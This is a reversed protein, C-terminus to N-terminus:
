NIIGTQGEMVGVGTSGGVGPLRGGVDGGLPRGHLPLQPGPVPHLPVPPGLRVPRVLHAVPVRPGLSRPLARPPLCVRRIPLGVSLDTKFKKTKVMTIRLKFTQPIIM